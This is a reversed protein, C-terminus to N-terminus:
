SHFVAVIKNTIPLSLCEGVTVVLEGNPAVEVAEVAGTKVQEKVAVVQEDVAIPVLLPYLKSGIEICLEVVADAVVTVASVVNLWGSLLMLSSSKQM